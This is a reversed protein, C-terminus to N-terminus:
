TYFSLNMQPTLLRATDVYNVAGINNSCVIGPSTTTPTVGRGEAPGCTWGLSASAYMGIEAWLPPYNQGFADCYANFTEDLSIVQAKSILTPIIFLVILLFKKM